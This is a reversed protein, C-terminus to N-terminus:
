TRDILFDDVFLQRGVLPIVAPPASLYPPTLPERPLETLRPPWPAPLRIGNPLTEGAQAHAPGPHLLEHLGLLGASSAQLFTRRNTMTTGRGPGPRCYRGRLVQLFTRRDTM